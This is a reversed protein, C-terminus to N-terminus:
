DMIAEREALIRESPGKHLSVLGVFIQSIAFPMEAPPLNSNQVKEIALRLDRWNTRLFAGAHSKGQISATLERKFFETPSDPTGFPRRGCIKDIIQFVQYLLHPESEYPMASCRSYSQRWVMIPLGALADAISLPEVNYRRSHLYNLLQTQCVYAEQDLLKNEVINTEKQASWLQKQFHILRRYRKIIESVLVEEECGQLLVTDAERCKWELEAIETGAQYIDEALRRRDERGKRIIAPVSKESRESLFVAVLGENPKYKLPSLAKRVGEPTANRQNRLRQLAWGIEPWSEELLAAWANRVGLLFNDPITPRGRGKGTKSSIDQKRSRKVRKRWVYYYVSLGSIKEEGRIDIV